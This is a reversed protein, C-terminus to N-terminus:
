LAISLLKTRCCNIQTLICLSKESRRRILKCSGFGALGVTLCSERTPVDRRILLKEHVHTNVKWHQQKEDYSVQSSSRIEDTKTTPQELYIEWM